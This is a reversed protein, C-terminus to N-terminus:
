LFPQQTTNESKSSLPFGCKAKWQRTEQPEEIKRDKMITVNKQLPYVLWKTSHGELQTQRIVGLFHTHVELLFAVSSALDKSPAPYSSAWSTPKIVTVHVVLHSSRSLEGKCNLVTKCPAISNRIISRDVRKLMWQHNKGSIAEHKHAIPSKELEM